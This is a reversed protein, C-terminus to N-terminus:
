PGCGNAVLILRSPEAKLGCHGSRPSGGRVARRPRDRGEPMDGSGAAVEAERIADPHGRPDALEGEALYRRIRQLLGMTLALNRSPLGKDPKDRQWWSFRRQVKGIQACAQERSRFWSRGKWMRRSFGACMWKADFPDGSRSPLDGELSGWVGAFGVKLSMERQFGGRGEPEDRTPLSTSKVSTSFRTVIALYDM